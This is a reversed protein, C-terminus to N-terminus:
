EQLDTPEPFGKSVHSYSQTFGLCAVNNLRRSTSSPFSNVPIIFGLVDSSSSSVFFPLSSSLFKRLIGISESILSYFYFGFVIRQLRRSVNHIWQVFLNLVYFSCIKRLSGRRIHPRFIHVIYDDLM